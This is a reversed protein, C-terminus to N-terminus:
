LYNQFTSFDPVAEFRSSKTGPRLIQTVGFGATEAAMLEEPIDSFFHIEEPNLGTEKAIKRYANPDRKTGIKTDFYHTIMPTLDGATSYGFILKQAHVSGSSYIGIKFGKDLIKRFFPQVDSYVHGKFENKSYGVDWILGQIDKLAGHKRDEKIWKLLTDIVDHLSIKRNEEKWVTQRVDEIAKIVVPHTQHHLVYEKLSKQSYPFLVKHVFNIDTTTGEIDFLFLKIM